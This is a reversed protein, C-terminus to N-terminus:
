PHAVFWGPYHWLHQFLRISTWEADHYEDPCRLLHRRGDPSFESFNRHELGTTTMSSGWRDTEYTTYMEEYVLIVGDAGDSVERSPAGFARVIDAHTRGIWEVEMSPQRSVYRPTTCSVAALAVLLLILFRKM